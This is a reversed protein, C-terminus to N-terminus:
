PCRVNVLGVADLDFVGALGTLDPRDTIRVLRAAAQGVDALDFADGGAVAPDLPDIDNVDPNAHVPATGACFGYPPATASCEYTTWSTGDSSVEVTALEAFTQGPTGAPVFANEFVIFDPGPGDVIESEGFELTVSGGNGLAVVHNTNQECCGAGRPPGLVLEPFRPQGTNQGPGFSHAPSATAYRSCASAEGDAGANSSCAVTLLVAVGLLVRSWPESM